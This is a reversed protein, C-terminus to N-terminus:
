RLEAPTGEAATGRARTRRRMRILSEILIAERGRLEVTRRVISPAHAGPEEVIRCITLLTPYRDALVGM